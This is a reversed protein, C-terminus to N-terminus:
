TELPKIDSVGRLVDLPSSIDVTVVNPSILAFTQCLWRLSSSLPAGGGSLTGATPLACHQFDLTIGAGFETGDISPWSQAWTGGTAGAIDGVDSTSEYAIIAVALENNNASTISSPAVSNTTASAAGAAEHSAAPAYSAMVGISLGDGNHSTATITLTSGAFSATVDSDDATKRFSALSRRGGALVAPIASWGSPTNWTLAAAALTNFGDDGFAAAVLQQGLVVGVPYYVNISTTDSVNVNSLAIPAPATM